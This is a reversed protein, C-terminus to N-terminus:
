QRIGQIDSDPRLQIMVDSRILTQSADYRSAVSLRQISELLDLFHGETGPPLADALNSLTQKSKEIATPSTATPEAPDEGTAAPQPAKKQRKAALREFFRVMEVNDLYFFGLSDDPIAPLLKKFAESQMLSPQQGQAVADMAAMENPTGIGFLNSSVPTMAVRFRDSKTKHGVVHLDEGNFRTSKTLSVNDLLTFFAIAKDYAVQSGESRNLFTMGEMQPNYTMSFAFQPGFLSIIHTRLDLGVSEMGKASLKDLGARTKDSLAHHYIFDYYYNLNAVQMVLATHQPLTELLQHLSGPPTFLTQMDSRFGQEKINALAVPTFFKGHIQWDTEDIEISGVGGPFAQMYQRMFDTLENMQARVNPSVKAKNASLAMLMNIDDFSKLSLMLTGQRRPSLLAMHQRFMPNDLVTEPTQKERLVAKLGALSDALVLNPGDFYFVPSAKERRRLFTLGDENMELFPDKGSTLWPLVAQRFAQPDKGPKLPLVTAFRFQGQLPATEAPVTEKRLGPEVWCGFSMSQQMWEELFAFVMRFAEQDEQAKEPKEKANSASVARGVFQHMRRLTNPQPAFEVFYLTDKPYYDQHGNVLAATQASGTLSLAISLHIAVGLGAGLVKLPRLGKCAFLRNWAKM